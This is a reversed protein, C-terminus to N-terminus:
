DLPTASSQVLWAVRTFSSENCHAIESDVNDLVDQDDSRTMDRRGDWEGRDRTADRGTSSLQYKTGLFTSPTNFNCKQARHVCHMFSKCEYTRRSWVRVKASQDRLLTIKGLCYQPHAM